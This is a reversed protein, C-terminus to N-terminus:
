SRNEYSCQDGNQGLSLAVIDNELKSSHVTRFLIRLFSNQSSRAYISAPGMHLGADNLLRTSFPGSPFLPRPRESSIRYAFLTSYPYMSADLEIIINTWPPIYNYLLSHSHTHTLPPAVNQLCSLLHPQGPAKRRGRM